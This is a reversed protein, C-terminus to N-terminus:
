RPLVRDLVTRLPEGARGLDRRLVRPRAPSENDIVVDARGRPDCAAHYRAQGPAYRRDIRREIEARTRGKRLDREVIRRRAEIPSADLYIVLGAGTAPVRLPFVGEVIAIPVGEFVVRRPAAARELASDFQPIEAGAAGAAFAALLREAAALDYYGDYYVDTEAEAAAAAAWDVPRRFDDISALMAPVGEGALAERLRRAFSSKGSGDIGDVTIITRAAPRAAPATV